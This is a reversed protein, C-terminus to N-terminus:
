AAIEGVPVLGLQRYLALSDTLMDAEVIEGDEIRMSVFGHWNMREGTPRLVRDEALTMEGDNTARMEFSQVVRDDECVTGTVDMEVDPFATLMNEFYGRAGDIGRAIEEGSERHVFESSLMEIGAEIDHRGFIADNFNEVLDRNSEITSINQNM